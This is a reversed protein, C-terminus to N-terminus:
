VFDANSGGLFQVAPGQVPQVVGVENGDACKLYRHSRCMLAVTPFAFDMLDNGARFLLIQFPYKGRATRVESIEQAHFFNCIKPLRYAVHELAVDLAPSVRILGFYRRVPWLLTVPGFVVLPEQGEPGIVSHNAVAAVPIKVLQFLLRTYNLLLDPFPVGYMNPLWGMFQVHIRQV